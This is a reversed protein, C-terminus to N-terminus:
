DGDDIPKGEEIWSRFDRVEKIWMYRVCIEQIEFYLVEVGMLGKRILNKIFLLLLQVARSQAERGHDLTETDTEIGIETQHPPETNLGPSHGMHEVLRLAHQIYSTVLPASDINHEALTHETLLTTLFDLAPLAIPLHTLDEFAAAPDSTRHRFLDHKWEQFTPKRPTDNTEHHTPKPLATMPSPEYIGEEELMRVYPQVDFPTTRHRANYLQKPTATAFINPDNSGLMGKIMELRTASIDETSIDLATAQTKTADGQLRQIAEVWHSLFPNLRLPTEANLKWLRYESNIVAALMKWSPQEQAQGELADVTSKIRLSKDFAGGIGDEQLTSVHELDEVADACTRDPDSLADLEIRALASMLNM